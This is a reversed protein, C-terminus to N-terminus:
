ADTIRRGKYSAPYMFVERQGTGKCLICNEEKYTGDFGNWRRKTGKGWCRYCSRTTGTPQKDFTIDYKKMASRFRSHKPSDGEAGLGALFGQVVPSEPELAGDKMSGEIYAHSGSLTGAFKGLKIVDEFLDEM